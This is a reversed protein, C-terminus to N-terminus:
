NDSPTFQRRVDDAQRKVFTRVFNTGLNRYLHCVELGFRRRVTATGGSEFMNKQRHHVNTDINVSEYSLCSV